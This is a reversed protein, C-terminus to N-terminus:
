AHNQLHFFSSAFVAFFLSSNWPQSTRPFSLTSPVCPIAPHAAARTQPLFSFSHSLFVSSRPSSSGLRVQGVRVGKGLGREVRSLNSTVQEM